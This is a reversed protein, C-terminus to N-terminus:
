ILALRGVDSEASTQDPCFWGTETPVGDSRGDYRLLENRFVDAADMHQGRM